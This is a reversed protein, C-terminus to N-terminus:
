LSFPNPPFSLLYPPSPSVSLFFLFCCLFLFLFWFLLQEFGSSSWLLFRFGCFRMVFVLVFVLSFFFFLFFFSFFFFFFSFFVQGELRIAEKCFTGYDIPSIMLSFKLM